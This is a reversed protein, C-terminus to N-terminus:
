SNELWGDGYAVEDELLHLFNTVVNTFGLHANEVDQVGMYDVCRLM